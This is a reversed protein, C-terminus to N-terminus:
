QCVTVKLLEANKKSQRSGMGQALSTASTALDSRSNAAYSYLVSGVAGTYMLETCMATCYM